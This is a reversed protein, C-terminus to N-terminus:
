GVDGVLILVRVHKTSVKKSKGDNSLVEAPHGLILYASLYTRCAKLEAGADGEIGELLGCRKLLRATANLVGEDQFRTSIEMFDADRVSEITLGLKVFEEVVRRDREKRWGRQIVRAAEEELVKRVEGKEGSGSGASGTSRKRRGRERLVEQRRREAEEMRAGVREKLSETEKERRVRMEVATRKAKAVESACSGTIKALIADRSKQAANMNAQLSLLRGAVADHDSARSRRVREVHQARARLSSKRAELLLQRRTTALSSAAPSASHQWRRRKLFHAELHPPPNWPSSPLPPPENRDQSPM